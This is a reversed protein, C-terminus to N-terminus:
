HRVVQGCCECTPPPAFFAEDMGRPLTLKGSHRDLWARVDPRNRVDGEPYRGADLDDQPIRGPLKSGRPAPPKGDLRYYGM